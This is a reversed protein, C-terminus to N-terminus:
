SDWNRASFASHEYYAVGAGVAKAELGLSESPADLIMLVPNSWNEPLEAHLSPVEGLKTLFALSDPSGVPLKVIM